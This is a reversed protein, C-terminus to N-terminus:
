VQEYTIRGGRMTLAIPTAAIEHPPIEFVNRGLVVLDADKGVRLSGAVHDIRLQRAADITMARIAAEVPLAEHAPPLPEDTTVGALRRTVASEILVLPRYTSVYSSAPYDAGLTVVTGAELASRITYHRRAREGVRRTMVEDIPTSAIWQGSTNHVVGLEAFRPLDAPDVLDGHCITHLLGSNGSSRVGAVADLAVRVARDGIAHFHCPFGAADAELAWRRIDEEPAALPGRTDPRDDYPELYASTHAEPVGDVFIKLTDITVNPSRFTQNAERLMAVPDAGFIAAKAGVVRQGIEGRHDLEVLMEWAAWEDILFVGADFAGTLGAAAYGPQAALLERRAQGPTAPSVASRVMAMAGEELVWGTPMGAEDRVFMSFGPDPDPTAATIGARALAASNVWLSHSSIERLMVPVDGFIEDLIRRDPGDPFIHSRWGGGLVTGDGPPAARLASVVEELTECESLVVGAAELPGNVYHTHGDIFGPLVLQDRGLDVVTTDPGILEAMQDASGVGQISGAAVAAAQAWPRAADFTCIPAGRLVVDAPKM